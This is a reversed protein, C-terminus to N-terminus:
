AACVDYGKARLRNNLAAIIRKEDEVILIKKM